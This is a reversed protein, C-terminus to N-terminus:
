RTPKTMDREFEMAKACNICTNYKIEKNSELKDKCYPCNM